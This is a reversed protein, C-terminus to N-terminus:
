EKVTVAKGEVVKKIAYPKTFARLGDSKLYGSVGDYEKISAMYDKVKDPDTSKTARMAQAIMMVADYSSDAGIQIDRNYTAKYREEFEKTPTLSVLFTLGECAGKCNAILTNDTNEAFIPQNIGIDKIQTMIVDFLSYGAVTVIIGDISPDQKIKMAGTRIDKEDVNPEYLFSIKGGLEIFRESFNKTQDKVWVDNAGIIAVNRHGKKYVLDAMDRSLIFDHPYTNFIYPNAENFEKVGLTPSVVVVKKQAILDTLALGQNSWNTGIIFKVQDSDTLKNFASITSFPSIQTDEYKAVLKRGSIGGSANIDKIALEMGNKTTEGWSAADGSLILAGGIVIDEGNDQKGFGNAFFVVATLVVLAIVIILVYTKKM